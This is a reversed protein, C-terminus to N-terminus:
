QDADWTNAPAASADWPAPAGTPAEAGWEAATNGTWEAGAAPPQGAWDQAAAGAWDQGTTADFAPRDAIEAVPAEEPKQEEEPERYFFLDVMVDWPQGRVLAPTNRLYLVERALLYWLLGLAHKGKNNGPIAIDVHNLPSDTHAFAITPVNVYSAERIPQHDTRPDSVILLRPEVFRDQIQNTFTGPTFRGTIATAGTYKAFKLIARQGYPRGSILVVDAPNEIAVIVRAALVLKEWTKQLNILFVGDSRRKWIYREMGADLNRTGVHVQCVLMKQVDSESPNLTQPFQASAM